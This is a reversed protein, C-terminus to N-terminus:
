GPYFVEEEEDDRDFLHISFFLLRDPKNYRRVIEETGNGHHVDPSVCGGRVAWVAFYLSM